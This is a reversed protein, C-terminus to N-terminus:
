RMARRANDFEKEQPLYGRGSARIRHHGPDFPRRVGLTAASVPSGNIVVRPQSPGKVDITVWALRPSLVVVEANADALAKVWSPPAGPAVGERIIRNYNEYAEVFKGLGIQARALDLMLTPAHVLANARSFRDAATAYDKNRLAQNGQHALSRATARDAASPEARVVPARLMTAVFILAAIAYLGPRLLGTFSALSLFTM